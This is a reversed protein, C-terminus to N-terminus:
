GPKDASKPRLTWQILLGIIAAALWWTLWAIATDPMWPGEGLGVRRLMAGGSGLWILSGAFATVVSASFGPAITGVVIGVLTAVIASAILMPQLELPMRNWRAEADGMVEAILLNAREVTSRAQEQDLGLEGGLLAVSPPIQPTDGAVAVDADPDDADAADAPASDDFRQPEIPEPPTEDDPDLSRVWEDLEDPEDAVAVPEPTQEAVASAAEPAPEGIGFWSPQLQAVAALSWPIAMALLVALGVSVILRTAVAAVIALLLASVLAMSWLPVVSAEPLLVGVVWGVAAGAAFGVAAFAPRLLRCGLGWMIVGGLMAMGLPIAEDIPVMATQVPDSMIVSAM